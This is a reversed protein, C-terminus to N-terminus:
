WREIREVISNINEKYDSEADGFLKSKFLSEEESIGNERRDFSLLFEVIADDDVIEGLREEDNLLDDIDEDSMDEEMKIKNLVLDKIRKRLKGRSFQMGKSARRITESDDLLKFNEDEVMANGSSWVESSETRKAVWLVVNFGIIFIIAYALVQDNLAGSVLHFTRGEPLLIMLFLVGVLVAQLMYYLKFGKEDGKKILKSQNIKRVPNWGVM